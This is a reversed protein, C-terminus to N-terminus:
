EAQRKERLEKCMEITEVSLKFRSLISSLSKTLDKARPASVNVVLCGDEHSYVASQRDVGDDESSIAAGVVEPDECPLRLSAQFEM